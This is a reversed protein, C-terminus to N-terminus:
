EEDDKDVYYITGATLDILYGNNDVQDPITQGQAMLEEDTAMALQENKRWELECIGDIDDPSLECIQYDIMKAISARADAMSLCQDVAVRVGLKDYRYINYWNTM